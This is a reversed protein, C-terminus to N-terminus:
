LSSFSVHTVQLFKGLLRTFSIIFSSFIKIYKLEQKLLNIKALSVTYSHEVGWGLKKSSGEYLASNTDFSFLKYMNLMYEPNTFVVIFIHGSKCYAVVEPLLCGGRHFCRLFCKPICVTYACNTM